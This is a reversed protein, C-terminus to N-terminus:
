DEACCSIRLVKLMSDRYRKEMNWPEVDEYGDNGVPIVNKEWISQIDACGSRWDVAVPMSPDHKQLETILESATM